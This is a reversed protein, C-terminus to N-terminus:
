NFMVWNQPIYDKSIQFHHEFDGFLVNVLGQINITTLQQWNNGITTLQQWNNDITIPHYKSWKSGLSGASEPPVIYRDKSPVTTRASRTGCRCGPCSAIGQNWCPLLPMLAIMVADVKCCFPVFPQRMLKVPFSCGELPLLLFWLMWLWRMM